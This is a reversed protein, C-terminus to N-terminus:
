VLLRALKPPLGAPADVLLPEMPASSLTHWYLVRSEPDNRALDLACALAKSTYTPDTVLGHERGLATARAGEKTPIGYGEGVYADDFTIRALANRRFSPDGRTLLVILRETLTAGVLKPGLVMAGIVRTRLRTKALGCALGAATGGSGVPVVILHPPPIDRLSVADEIERAADVYGRAGLVNSGGLPVVLDGPERHALFVFPAALSSTAPLAELGQALSARLVERAHESDAQPTLVAAVRMGLRTGFITTALVHHSGAAGFTVIRKAGRRRADSLIHQLKRAKNGGYLANTQDDRKVWISAGAGEDITLKEVRTTAITLADDAVFDSV